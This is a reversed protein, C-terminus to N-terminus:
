DAGQKKMGDIARYLMGAIRRFFDGEAIVIRWQGLVTIV